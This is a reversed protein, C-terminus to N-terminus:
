APWEGLLEIELQLRVGYKELVTNRALEILHYIDSAAARGRNVFFNAHRPSIMADGIVTGKLGASDILRGAYEGTPNKFMSGLTAGPPQSKHRYDSYAEMRAQVADPTSHELRLLAVLVVAQVVQRKIISSRYEYAMQEVSWKEKLLEIYRDMGTIKKRHLIEAMLLNHAIDSGHAGANGVVAGGVTGPIGSAWELGSLGREAAQRAVLSFNAGSEAWVTPPVSHEDFNVRRARNLIVIGRIGADSILVNSGAGLLVLPWEREWVAVTFKALEETNEAVLMADAPGGIRATTYRALPENVLLREGFLTHLAEVSYNEM